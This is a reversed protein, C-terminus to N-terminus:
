DKGNRCAPCTDPCYVELHNHKVESKEVKSRPYWKGKWKVYEEMGILKLEDNDTVEVGDIEVLTSVTDYGTYNEHFAEAYGLRGALYETPADVRLAFIEENGKLYEPLLDNSGDVNTPGCCSESGNIWALLFLYRM